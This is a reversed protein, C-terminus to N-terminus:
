GAPRHAGCKWASRRSDLVQLKRQAEVLRAQVRRRDGQATSLEAQLAAVSPESDGVEALRGMLDSVRAALEVERAEDKIIQDRVLFWELAESTPIERDSGSVSYGVVEPVPGKWSIMPEPGRGEKFRGGALQHARPAADFGARFSARILDEVEGRIEKLNMSPTAALGQGEETGEVSGTRAQADEIEGRVTEILSGAARAIDFNALTQSSPDFKVSGAPTVAERLRQFLEGLKTRFLIIGFTVVGPWAIIEASENVKSWIETGQM